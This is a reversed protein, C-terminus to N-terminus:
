GAKRRMPASRMQDCHGVFLLFFAEGRREALIQFAALRLSADQGLLFGLLAAVALLSSANYSRNPKLAAAIRKKESL